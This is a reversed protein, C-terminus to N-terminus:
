DDKKFYDSSQKPQLHALCKLFHQVFKNLNSKDWDELSKIKVLQQYKQIKTNILLNNKDISVYLIIDGSKSFVIAGHNQPNTNDKNKFIGLVSMHWMELPLLPIYKSNDDQYFYTGKQLLTFIDNESCLKKFKEKKKDKDKDKDDNSVNDFLYEAISQSSSKLMDTPSSLGVVTGVTSFGGTLQLKKKRQLYKYKYKLYKKKYYEDSHNM